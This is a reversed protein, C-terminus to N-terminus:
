TLEETEVPESRHGCEPEGTVRYGRLWLSSEFNRIYFGTPYNEDNTLGGVSIEKFAKLENMNKYNLEETQTRM